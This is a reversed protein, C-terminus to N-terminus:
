DKNTDLLIDKDEEKPVPWLSFALLVAWGICTWGLAINLVIAVGTYSKRTSHVICTPLFYTLIVCGWFGWFLALALLENITSM